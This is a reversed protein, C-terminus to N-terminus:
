SEAVDDYKTGLKQNAKRQISVVKYEGLQPDSIVIKRETDGLAVILDRLEIGTQDDKANDEIGVLKTNAAADLAALDAPNVEAGEAIGSLKTQETGTFVKNTTGDEIKDADVKATAANVKGVIEDDTYAAANPDLEM